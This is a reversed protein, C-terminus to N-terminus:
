RSAYWSLSSYSQKWKKEILSILESIPNALKSESLAKEIEENTIIVPVWGRYPNFAKVTGKVM